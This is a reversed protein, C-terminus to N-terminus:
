PKPNRLIALGTQPTAGPRYRINEPKSLIDEKGMEIEKEKAMMAADIDETSVVQVEPCAAIQMAIDAALSQFIEGRAVFDTECNVEVMVGLRDGAHIYSSVMGDAAVRSAKKGAKAIGKKRLFDAAAQIDGSCEKLANKCDMMGAGSMDRLAKVDKASIAGGAAAAPAPAAEAVPEPAAEEVAAEAVPEPAAEEEVVPEPAAEEVAAEAVPEPAAEEEVVAEPAAEEEVAAEAVPAAEAEQESCSLM